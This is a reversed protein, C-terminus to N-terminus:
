RRAPSGTNRANGGFRPWDGRDRAPTRWVLLVGDRRVVALETRGDGDWDGAAPTGVLWGGSLKPWGRPVRGEADVASVTFTGNGAVVERRGDGDVDVIAPTVFFAMDPTEHPFGALATGGAAPDWAMLQDDAPLQQEPTAVDLLRSVGGTGTAVQRGPGPRLRGAAPGTFAPLVLGLDESTRNAGFGDPDATLLGGFWKLPVDRGGVQGLASRGDAGLLYMPGVVSAVAVELGPRGPLFDAIAAQTGVGEGITPLVQRQFMGVRVPWGPLYAAADPHAPTRAPGGALRGRASLAYVRANGSTGPLGTFEAANMPEDYSEQAGVVIEVRGDGDLDGVAPTALLAGGPDARAAPDFTVKHTVPDVATVTAPDALLVPFGAVPRGDAHWAYVHRDLSAAVLESRRDGDLDAAVLAGAIGPLTRNFRDQAAPSDAAFRRDTRVRAVTRGDRRTSAFAPLRRGRADWAYVNGELDAAAVDDRGDGDLDTVVPAGVVFAGRPATLGEARWRARGPWYAVEDALVPWGPLSRGDARLAHIRGDDTGVLLEDRGDRDLDAFVPSSTGAGALRRPFGPWLDPDDHVFVQVQTTGILGDTPGGRATAVVRVRVSFREEDSRRTAPDAPVGRGGGPLAAAVTGLDLRGLVGDRPRRLGRRESVVRWRDRGPHEPPNFGPAWEVRLDYARARPAAVRGTVAVTGRGPLLSFFRPSRLDVEPPIRRRRVARVLEYANIRGYGHVADWGPRSPYRRTGSGLDFNNAPDAGTPTAFDVDDATARVLQLVEAASLRLGRARAESLALGVMGAALGTAESSCSSSPVSVVTRGGWNTCGNLALYSRPTATDRVSNVALTRDLAAPLNPHKSAEDAMSAVVVVGRRWAADIARRVQRPNNLAGLAEQIVAAGSDLAFLVGAAFRGGDAIFSDAVRVPIFLCRPCTGVEGLGNAAATSDIAEGTGHGHDVVDLPNNDGYLFDWGSIDDVYGNRDDDRGNAHAPDLILDEPDALGNRNRDPIAGFDTITFRGDGDCDGDRRAPWCPPRAEGLNVYAETALDRMAASDRWRIGSDLVAIRVSPDGTTLGWALDVAAGKQGCLHQPSRALAPDRRSTRKYGDRDFEAPLVGPAPEDAPGYRWQDCDLRPPADLGATPAAGGRRGARDDTGTAPAALPALLVLAAVPAVLSRRPM